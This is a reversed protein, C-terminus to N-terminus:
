PPWSGCTGRSSSWSAAMLAHRLGGPVGASPLEPARAYDTRPWTYTILDFRRRHRLGRGRGSRYTASPPPKWSHERRHKL